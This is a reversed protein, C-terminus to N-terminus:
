LQVLKKRGKRIEKSGEQVKEGGVKVDRKELVKRDVEREREMGMEGIDSVIVGLLWCNVM